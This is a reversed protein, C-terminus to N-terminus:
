CRPVAPVVLGFEHSLAGCFLFFFTSLISRNNKQIMNPKADPSIAL